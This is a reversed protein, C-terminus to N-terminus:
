GGRQFIHLDGGGSLAHGPLDGCAVLHQAWGAPLLGQVIPDLPDVGERVVAAAAFAPGIRTALRSVVERTSAVRCAHFVEVVGEADSIRLVATHLRCPPEDAARSRVLRLPLIAVITDPM